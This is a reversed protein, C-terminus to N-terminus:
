RAKLLKPILSFTSCHKKISTFKTKAVTRTQKHVKINEEDGMKDAATVQVEPSSERSGLPTIRVGEIGATGVGFFVEYEPVESDELPEEGSSM